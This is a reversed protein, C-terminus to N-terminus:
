PALWGGAVRWRRLSGDGCGLRDAASRSPLGSVAALADDRLLDLSRALSTWTEPRVWGPRPMSLVRALVAATTAITDAPRSM